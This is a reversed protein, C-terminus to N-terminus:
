AACQRIAFVSLATLYVLSGKRYTRVRPSVLYFGIVNLAVSSLSRGVLRYIITSQVLSLCLAYRGDFRFRHM